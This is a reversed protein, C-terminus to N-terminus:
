PNRLPSSISYRAWGVVVFSPVRHWRQNPEGEGGHEIIARRGVTHRQGFCPLGNGRVTPRSPQLSIPRPLYEELPGQAREEDPLSAVEEQVIRDNRLRKRGRHLAQGPDERAVLAFGHIAERQDQQHPRMPGPSDRQAKPQPVCSAGGRVGQGPFQEARGAGAQAAARPVDEEVGPRRRLGQQLANPVVSPGTDASELLVAPKM